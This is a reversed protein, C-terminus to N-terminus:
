RICSYIEQYNTPLQHHHLSVLAAIGTEFYSELVWLNILNFGGFNRFNQSFHLLEPVSLPQHWQAEVLQQSRKM